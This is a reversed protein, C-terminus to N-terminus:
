RVWLLVRGPWPQVEHELLVKIVDNPLIAISSSTSITNSVKKTISPMAIIRSPLKNAATISVPINLRTAAQKYTLISATSTANVSAATPPPIAVKNNRLVITKVVLWSFDLM